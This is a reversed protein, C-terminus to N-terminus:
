QKGGDPPALAGKIEIGTLNLAPNDCEPIRGVDDCHMCCTWGCTDCGPGNHFGADTFFIDLDPGDPWDVMRPTHGKAKMAAVWKENRANM